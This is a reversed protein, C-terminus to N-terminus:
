IVFLVPHHAYTPMLFSYIMVVVGALGFTSLFRAADVSNGTYRASAFASTITVGATVIVTGCTFRCPLLSLSYSLPFIGLSRVPTRRVQCICWSVPMSRYIALLHEWSLSLRRDLPWSRSSASILGELANHFCQMAWSRASDLYGASSCPGFSFGSYSSSVTTPTIVM